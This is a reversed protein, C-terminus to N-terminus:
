ERKKRRRKQFLEAQSRFWSLPTLSQRYEGNAYVWDVTELKQGCTPCFEPAPEEDAAHILEREIKDEDVKLCGASTWMRKGRVAELWEKLLELPLKQIGSKSIYKCVEAIAGRKNKESVARVDVIPTYKVGLAKRWLECWEPQPIYAPNSKNFYEPPVQILAHIHPHWTDGSRTIEVTRVYGGIKGRLRPSKVFKSYSKTLHDITAKLKGDLANRVTLTLLIYRGGAMEVAKVTRTSYAMGRRWSCVPCARDKCLIAKHIRNHHGDPCSKTQLASACSAMRESRKKYASGLQSLAIAMKSASAKKTTWREKLTPKTTKGPNDNKIQHAINNM